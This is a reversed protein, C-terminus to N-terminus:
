AGLGDLGSNIENEAPGMLRISDGFSGPWKLMNWEDRCSAIAMKWQSGGHGPRVASKERSVGRPWLFPGEGRDVGRQSLARLERLFVAMNSLAAEFEMWAPRPLVGTVVQIRM